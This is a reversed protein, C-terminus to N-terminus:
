PAETKAAAPESPTKPEREALDRARLLDGHRQGTPNERHYYDLAAARDGQEEALRGLNSQVAWRLPPDLPGKESKDLLALTQEFLFKAPAPHALDLHCFALFATAYLDQGRQIQPPMPTKAADSFTPKPSRQFSVYGELAGTLDGRLQKLRASLMPLFGSPDFLQLPYLSAKVYGPENFLRSEVRLPVPWFEVKGARPGLAALWADRQEAPDRYVTMRNKSALKGQLVRMRPTFYSLSSDIRLDVKGALDAHTVGYESQGPLDLRALIKPDAAAQELTAVGKGDPGPVPLGIRADFAYIKGDILVGCAWALPEERGPPRLSILGADLGLQRCLAIFVWSREAWDGDGLETALGRLLVDYPRAQAQPLGAPTLANRPVLGVQRTVWDFVRTARTLDDGTGAVRMAVSQYLLCDELHRADKANFKPNELGRIAGEADEPKIGIGELNAKVYERAEPEMAFDSPAADEFYHNLNSAVMAFWDSGPTTAAKEILQFINSLLIEKTGADVKGSPSAGGSGGEGRPGTTATQGGSTPGPDEIDGFCGILAFAACSAALWPRSRRTM